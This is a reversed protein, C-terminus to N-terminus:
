RRLLWETRLIWRIARHKCKYRLNCPSTQLLFVNGSCASGVPACAPGPTDQFASVYAVLSTLVTLAVAYQAFM